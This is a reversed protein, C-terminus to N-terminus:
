LEKTITEKFSIFYDKGELVPHDEWSIFEGKQDCVALHSLAIGLNIQCMTGLLKNAPFGMIRHYCHILDDQRYFYWDQVNVASPALRAADILTTQTNSIESIDKRKFDEEARFLEEDPKGFAMSIIPLLGERHKKPKVFGNWCSGLGRSNLYLSLQEGIFGINELYGPKDESYFFFYHPSVTKLPNNVQDVIEIDYKINPFLPLIKTAETKINNLEDETLKEAKYKRISKRKFIYDKLM